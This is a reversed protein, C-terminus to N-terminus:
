GLLTACRDARFHSFFFDVINFILLLTLGSVQKRGSSPFPWSSTTFQPFVPHVLGGTVGWLYSWMMLVYHRPKATEMWVYFSSGGVWKREMLSARRCGSPYWEEGNFVHLTQRLDPVRFVRRQEKPFSKPKKLALTESRPFVFKISVFTISKKGKLGSAQQTNVRNIPKFQREQLGQSLLSHIGSRPALFFTNM